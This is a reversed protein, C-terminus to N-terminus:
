AHARVAGAAYGAGVVLCIASTVRVFSNVEQCKGCIGTLLHPQWAVLPVFSVGRVILGVGILALVARLGPLKCILGAGSYAYASCAVLVAAIIVCSVAPRLSDTSAMAVLGAPAGLLSYWYPGGFIVAIHLFAGAAMASGAAVLYMRRSQSM